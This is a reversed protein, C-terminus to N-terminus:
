KFIEELARMLQEGRLNRAIIRGKPDILFNTPISQVTYAIGAASSWGKLDSVQTWTLGDDKIAKEWAEKNNDLSVGFITFNKDKFKEYAAVVNPNEGRCPGCWSAWFDLLVYKGKLSSLSVMKGDPTPLTVEPAATGSDALVTEAPVQKKKASVKSYYEAFDKTMGTGPFRRGLGQSFAYLYTGETTANLIRAAFVANPEYPTTDAYHEVFQTFHLRMDQFDKKAAGLISDNAKAQLTDLVISMTNFDRLHERIAVVFNRLHESAPSGSLSYDELQEWKASIMLNGKEVSLLIFKNPQFHIRYLGPEPAIGSLEFHGDANSHESDVITIIDNANLQELIVTQVPMGTINGIIHFKRESGSCAALVSIVTFIFLLQKSRMWPTKRL